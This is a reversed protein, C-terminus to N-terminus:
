VILNDCKDAERNINLIGAPQTGAKAVQGFM